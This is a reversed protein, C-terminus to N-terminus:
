TGSGLKHITVKEAALVWGLDGILEVRDSYDDEDDPPAEVKSYVASGASRQTIRWVGDVYRIDLITGDGFALTMEPDSGLGYAEFEEVLDGGVMVIDDSAGSVIITSM